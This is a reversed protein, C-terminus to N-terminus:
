NLAEIYLEPLKSVYFNKTSEYLFKRTVTRTLGAVQSANYVGVILVAIGAVGLVIKATHALNKFHGFFQIIVARLVFIIIGLILWNLAHFPNLLKPRLEPWTNKIFNKEAEDKIQLHNEPLKNEFRQLFEEYDNNFEAIMEKQIKEVINNRNLGLQFGILSTRISKTNERFTKEIIQMLRYSLNDRNWDTKYLYMFDSKSGAFASTAIVFVLIFSIFLNKKM